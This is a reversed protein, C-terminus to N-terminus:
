AGDRRTRSLGVSRLWRRWMCRLARDECHEAAVAAEDRWGRRRADEAALIWYMSALPGLSSVRRMVPVCPGKGVPQAVLERALRDLGQWATKASRLPLRMDGSKPVRPASKACAFERFADRYAHLSSVAHMYPGVDAGIWGAMIEQLYTFQVFNYPLGRFLDNSRCCQLWHLRGDVLRLCAQTNCPVDGSRPKGSSHPLDGGASWISLVIQRTDSNATLAQAARSLQDFGCSHRLRAGYAGPACKGGGIYKGYDPFWHALFAVDDRGAVIHVIEAIALAVNMAPTRSAVWRARPNRVQVATHMLEVTQGGRSGIEHTGQRNIIAHVAQRWVADASQGSYTNM